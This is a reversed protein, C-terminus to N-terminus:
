YRPYYGPGPGYYVPPYAAQRRMVPAGGTNPGAAYSLRVMEQQSVTTVTVPNALHFTLVAEAPVILNGGPSGASSAVGAAGGIAAGAAAGGGGGIAGGFLAGVAGLAVASGVTHGTKSQGERFWTDSALTYVQGGLTLRTIQLALEGKGKLAGAKHADAVVGQIQAGRPIAIAGDAVVDALVTGDFIQGPQAHRSSLGQNIRIQVVSGAPVVAPRGAVQAPPRPYDGRQGGYMPRRQPYQGPNQQPPYQGGNQQPYQGDAYQGNGQMDPPPGATGRAPPPGQTQPLQQPAQQAQEQGPAYSGDSQLVMGNQPQPAGNGAPAQSNAAETGLSMEDVVKKVGAVRSVLNEAKTRSDEDTAAGSLTVVGYVTTTQINQTSLEPATALAKLVNAEIQADSITGGKAPANQQAVASFAFGSALVVGAVAKFGARVVM